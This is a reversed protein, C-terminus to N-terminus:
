NEINKGIAFKKGYGWCIFTLKEFSDAIV